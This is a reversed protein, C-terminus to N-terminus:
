WSVRALPMVVCETDVEPNQRYPCRIQVHVVVGHKNPLPTWVIWAYIVLQQWDILADNLYFTYGDVHFSPYGFAAM